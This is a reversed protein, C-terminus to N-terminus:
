IQWLQHESGCNSTVWRYKLEDLVVDAQLLRGALSGHMAEVRVCKWVVWRHANAVWELTTYRADAGASLLRALLDPCSM